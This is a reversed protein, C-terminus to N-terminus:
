ICKLDLLLAMLRSNLIRIRAVIRRGTRRTLCEYEDYEHVRGMDPVVKM